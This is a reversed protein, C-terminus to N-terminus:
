VAKATGDHFAVAEQYSESTEGRHSVAAVISAWESAPINNKADITYKETYKGDAGKEYTRHEFSVSGNENRWFWWGDKWHFMPYM